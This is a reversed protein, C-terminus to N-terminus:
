VDLMRQTLEGYSDIRRDRFFPWTRRHEDLVAPDITAHLIAEQEGAQAIWEGFPGSVFSGGWFQTGNETGVRNIAAVFCGNAIGHSRQITQWADRFEQQQQPTEHALVGIATPYILVEAGKMATLRAAEPFWQDWCILMGLKGFATHAVQYGTDGPTFYYKECFGPDDPIHMKRYFGAVSGDADYVVASNHYVGPARKEFFPVVLVVGLSAAEQRLRQLTPGELSEAQAFVSEDYDICFYLTNFLEQLCIVQAGEAAAQRISALTKELNQHLDSSNSQQILALRMDTTRKTFYGLRM